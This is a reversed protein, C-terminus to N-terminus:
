ESPVGVDMGYQSKSDGAVAAVPRDKDLVETAMMAKARPTVRARAPVGPVTETFVKRDCVASPCLWKRKRWRRVPRDPGVQVDRPGTQVWGKSRSSREGCRPCIGVLGLATRVEVLRTGDSLRQM